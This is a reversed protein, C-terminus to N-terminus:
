KGSCWCGEGRHDRQGSVSELSIGRGGMEKGNM